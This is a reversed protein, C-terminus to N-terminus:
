NRIAADQTLKKWQKPPNRSCSQSKKPNCLASKHRQGYCSEAFTYARHGPGRHPKEPLLQEAARPFNIRIETEELVRYVSYTGAQIILHFEIIQVRM